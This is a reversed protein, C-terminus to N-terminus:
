NFPAKIIESPLNNWMNAIRCTFFNARVNYHVPYKFVKYQHGRTTPFADRSRFTFMSLNIEICDLIIRYMLIM